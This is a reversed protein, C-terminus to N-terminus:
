RYETNPDYESKIWAGVVFKTTTCLPESANLSQKKQFNQLSIAVTSGVNFGRSAKKMRANVSARLPFITVKKDIVISNIVKPTIPKRILIFTSAVAFLSM